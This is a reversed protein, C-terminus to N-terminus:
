HSVQSRHVHMEIGMQAIRDNLSVITDTHRECIARMEELEEQSEKLHLRLLEREHESRSLTGDQTSVASGPSRGSLKPSTYAGPSPSKTFGRQYYDRLCAELERADITGSADFDHAIFQNLRGDTLWFGFNEYQTGALGSRLENITL